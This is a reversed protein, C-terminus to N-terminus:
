CCVMYKQKRDIYPIKSKGKNIIEKQLKLFTMNQSAGLSRISNELRQETSQVKEFLAIFDQKRANTDNTIANLKNNTIQLAKALHSTENHFDLYCKTHEMTLNRELQVVNDKLVTSNQILGAVKESLAIFSHNRSNAENKVTILKNNAIELARELHSTENRCKTNEMTFNRELQIVNGKLVTNNQILGAVKESLVIFSQIRSNAMISINRKLQIVNDKLITHNQNLGIFQQLLVIFDQKRVNAENIVANLKNDTIQLAKELHSTENRINLDCQANKMTHLSRELLIVKDKLMTNNQMLSAVQTQLLAKDRKLHFIEEELSKTDSTLSGQNITQTHGGNGGGCQCKAIEQRLELLEQAVATELKSRSRREVILLDMLTNYRKEDLSSGGVATQTNGDLLFGQSSVVIVFLLLLMKAM